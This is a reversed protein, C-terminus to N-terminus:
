PKICHLMRPFPIAERIHKYWGRTVMREIGHWIWRTPSYKFKCDPLIWVRYSGYWLSEMKAVLADYDEERMSCWYNRGYGEPAPLFDARVTEPQSSAVHFGQHGLQITSWSPQYVLTTKFDVNWTTFWFTMEMSLHEYDADEDNEHEQLLDIAEDYTIRQIARCHLTWSNQIVNLTELAQPATLPSFSGQLAKVYAAQWTLNM